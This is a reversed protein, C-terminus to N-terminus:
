CSLTGRVQDRDNPLHSNPCADRISPRASRNAPTVLHHRVPGGHWPNSKLHDYFVSARGSTFGCTCTYDAGPASRQQVRGVTECCFNCGSALFVEFAGKSSSMKDMSLRVIALDRRVLVSPQRQRQHAVADLQGIGHLGACRCYGTCIQTSSKQLMLTKTGSAQSVM